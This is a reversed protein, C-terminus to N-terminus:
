QVVELRYFGQRHERTSDFISLSAGTGRIAQGVPGWHPENLSRTWEVQYLKDRESTWSLEIAGSAHLEVGESAVQSTTASSTSPQSDFRIALSFRSNTSPLVEAVGYLPYQEALVTEFNAYDNWQGAAYHGRPLMHVYFEGNGHDPQGGGWNTYAVPEGSSWAFQFVKDRDTLGIWLAGGYSGFTSYVWSDEAANRITTLHGGLGVAEAEANSWTNQSLLYYIHGNAPNIIPGALIGGRASLVFAVLVITLLTKMDTISTLLGSATEGHFHGVRNLNPNGARRIVSFVLFFHGVSCGGVLWLDFKVSDLRYVRQTSKHHEHHDKHVVEGTRSLNYRIPHNMEAITVVSATSHSKHVQNKGSKKENHSHRDRKRDTPSQGFALGRHLNQKM